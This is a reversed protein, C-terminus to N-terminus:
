YTYKKKYLEIAKLYKIGGSKTQDHLFGNLEPHNDNIWNVLDEVNKSFKEVNFIDYTSEIKTPKGNLFTIEEITIIPQQHLFLIREDVKSVKVKVNENDEVIDLIKYTPNFVSDWKLWDEVYRKKSFVETYNYETIHTTLSDAILKNMLSSDSHDLAKYYQKAINLNENESFTNKCNLTIIALIILIIKKM